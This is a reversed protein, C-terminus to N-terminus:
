NNLKINILVFMGKGARSNFDCAGKITKVKNVINNLGLGQTSKTMEEFNFGIGDDKYYLILQNNLVKLEIKINQAKSHKLTNNILEKTVQFIITEIFSEVKETYSSTDVSIKIQKTKNIYNCFEAIATALGFEHLITPTIRNQLDKATSIAMDTLGDIDNILDKSKEDNIPKSKLLDSYLKITSLIPGLEDHLDAAFKKREKEETKIVTSIIKKEMEKRQEINRAVSLIVKQGEYDILKSKMEVLISNGNKCVHESEYTAFGTNIIKSINKSVLERYKSKKIERINKQLFEQRNYGLTKCAVQNVEIINGQLDLVYIEDSSNDFLTEFKKESIELKKETKDIKQLSKKINKYTVIFIVLLLVSISLSGIILSNKIIKSKIQDIEANQIIEAAIILNFEAFYRFSLIKVCKSTKCEFKITGNKKDILNIIFTSDNWNQGEYKPHIVVNAFTDIAYVYGSNGIKVNHLISRLEDINKEKNGVYIMGVLTNNFFLPEYATIYWDNVVYARGFYIKGQEITKIVPSNNPIFTAVARQKDTTQVNTSIRLYGSDVKQFITATGGVLAKITDVFSHNNLLKQGNLTWININQKYTNKTIQNKADIILTDNTINFNQSYFLNHIVKLHNEVLKNKIQYEREFMKYITEVELELSKTLIQNVSKTTSKVSLITLITIVFLISFSIPIFFKLRKFLKKFFDNM